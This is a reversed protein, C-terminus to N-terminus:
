RGANMRSEGPSRQRSLRHWPEILCAAAIDRDGVASLVACEGVCGSAAVVIVPMASVQLIMAISGVTAGAYYRVM